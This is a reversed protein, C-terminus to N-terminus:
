KKLQTSSAAPVRSQQQQQQQQNDVLVEAGSCMAAAAALKVAKSSSRGSRVQLYSRPEFMLVPFSTNVLNLNGQLIQRGMSKIWVMICRASAAAAAATIITIIIITSAPMDPAFFSGSFSCQRSEVAIRVAQPLENLM